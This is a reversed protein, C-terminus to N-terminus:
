EVIQEIKYLNDPTKEQKIFAKAEDESMFIRHVIETRSRKVDIVAKWDSDESLKIFVKYM